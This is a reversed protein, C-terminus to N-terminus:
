SICGQERNVLDSSGVYFYFLLIFVFVATACDYIDHINFCSRFDASKPKLALM